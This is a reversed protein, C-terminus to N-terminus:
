SGGLALGRQKNEKALDFEKQKPLTLPNFDSKLPEIRLGQAFIPFIIFYRNSGGNECLIWSQVSCTATIKSGQKTKIQIIINPGGRTNSGDNELSLLLNV